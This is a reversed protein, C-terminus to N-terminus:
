KIITWASVKMAQSRAVKYTNGRPTTAVGVDQTISDCFPSKGVERTGTIEVDGSFEFSEGNVVRQIRQGKLM